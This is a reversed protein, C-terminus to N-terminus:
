EFFYLEDNFYLNAEAKRRRVLGALRKGGSTVALTEWYEKTITRAQAHKWINYDKWQGGSKYSTGANFCFSVLADLEHQYLPRKVKNLVMGTFKVLHDALMEKAQRMTIEDGMRVKRGSGPYFTAGFGITPIGVPDLYAKLECGEFHAVLDICQDSVSTVGATKHRLHEMNRRITLLALRIPLIM